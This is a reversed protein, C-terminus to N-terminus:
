AVLKCTIWGVSTSATTSSPDFTTPPSSGVTTATTFSIPSGTIMLANLPNYTVSPYVRFQSTVNTAKGYLIYCVGPSLANIGTPTMIYTQATNIAVSGSSILSAPNSTNASLGGLRQYILIWANTSGNGNTTFLIRNYKCPSAIRHVGGQFTLIQGSSNTQSGGLISPLPITDLQEIASSILGNIQYVGTSPSVNVLNTMTATNGTFNTNTINNIFGNNGSILSSYLNTGTFTTNLIYPVTLNPFSVNTGTFNTIIANTIFADIGTFTSNSINTANLNNFNAGTFTINNGTFNTVNLNTIFGNNGTIYNVNIGTATLNNINSISIFETAGTFIIGANLYTSMTNTGTYTGVLAGTVKANLVEINGTSLFLIGTAFNFFLNNFFGDNGNVTLGTFLNAFLTNTFQGFSGSIVNTVFSNTFFSDVGTIVNVNIGTAILNNINSNTIYQKTGTIVNTNIFTSNLNSFTGGTSSINNSFINNGTIVNNVTLNNTTINNVNSSGSITINSFSANVGTINIVSIDSGTLNIITAYLSNLNTSVSNISQSNTFNSDNGTLNNIFANNFTSNTVNIYTIFQSISAGLDQLNIPNYESVKVKFNPM